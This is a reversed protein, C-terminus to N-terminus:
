DRGSQQRRLTTRALIRGLGRALCDMSDLSENPWYHHSHDGNSGARAQHHRTAFAVLAYNRRTSHREIRTTRDHCCMAIHLWAHSSRRLFDLLDEANDCMFICMCTGLQLAQVTHNAHCSIGAWPLPPQAGTTTGGCESGRLWSGSIWSAPGSTALYLVALAYRQIVLELSITPDDMATTDDRYLLWDLAQAQPTSADALTAAPVLLAIANKWEVQVKTLHDPSQRQRHVLLVVVIIILAAVVVGAVAMLATWPTSSSVPRTPPQLPTAKVSSRQSAAVTVSASEPADMAKQTAIMEPM